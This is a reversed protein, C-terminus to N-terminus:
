FPNRGALQDLLAPAAFWVAVIAGVILAIAASLPARRTTRWLGAHLAFAVTGLVAFGVGLVVTAANQNGGIPGVAVVGIPFATLGMVTVGNVISTARVRRGTRDRTPPRKWVALIGVCVLVALAVFGQQSPLAVWAGVTLAAGLGLAAIWPPRVNAAPTTQRPARDPDADMARDAISM